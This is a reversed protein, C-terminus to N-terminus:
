PNATLEASRRKAAMAGFAERILRNANNVTIDAHGYAPAVEMVDFGVVDTGLVIQRAPM